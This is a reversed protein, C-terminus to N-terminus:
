LGMAGWLRGWLTGWLEGSQGMAGWLRDWVAGCGGIVM